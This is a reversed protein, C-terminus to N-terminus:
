KIIACKKIVKIPNEGSKQADIYYIYVGSAIGSIDWQYEYAYIKNDIIKWDSGAVQQTHILEAAINYIKIEVSDAIGCAIHITPKYGNKAPNPYAYAENLKFTPDPGFSKRVSMIGRQEDTSKYIYFEDLTGKAVGYSSEPYKNGINFKSFTQAQWSSANTVTGTKKEGNIWIEAKQATRDWTFKIQYWTNAVAQWGSTEVRVNNASDVLFGMPYSPNGSVYGYFTSNTTCSGFFLYSWSGPSGTFNPRYWFEISGRDPNINGIPDIGFYARNTNWGAPINIAGGATGAIAAIPGNDPNKYTIFGAGTNPAADVTNEMDWYFYNENNNQSPTQAQNSMTSINLESNETWLNFYYTVGRALKSLTIKQTTGATVNSTSIIIQAKSVQWNITDQQNSNWTSYEIYYKGTLTGQNDNNGPSTWTLDIQGSNTGATAQLDNVTAPAIPCYSTFEDMAGKVMGYSSEPIKNGISFGSINTPQWYNVNNVIGSRKIGDIWIEAKQNQRDWVLKFYYWRDKQALWTYAPVQTYVNYSSDVYFMLPDGSNGSKMFYFGSNAPGSSYFFYMGVGTSGTYDPRYWFDIVGKDPNVNSPDISYYARNTNWGSQLQIANGIGSVGATSVIPGNDPNTKAINGAGINPVTANVNDMDWYFYQSENLNQSVASVVNSIGSVNSSEDVTWLAFYYTAGRILRNVSYKQAQGPSVNGTSINVQTKGIDWAVESFTSYQIYFNGGLIRQSGDNGPADWNLVVERSNTGTNAVLTNVASPAVVDSEVTVSGNVISENGALDKVKIQCIYDGPQVLNNYGNKGNWSLTFVGPAANVSSYYRVDNWNSDYIYMRVKSQESVSFSFTVTDNINDNNPSFTSPTVTFDGIEPAVTDRTVYIPDSIESKIPQDNFWRITKAMIPNSGEVIDIFANFLGTVVDATVTKIVAGDNYIEVTAGPESQGSVKVSSGNTLSTALSFTPVPVQPIILYYSFSTVPFWIKYYPRGDASFVPDVTKNIVRVDLPELSGDDKVDYVTMKGMIDLISGYAQLEEPLLNVTLMAPTVTSIHLGKPQFDYIPGIPLPMGENRRITIDSYKKPTITIDVDHDVSGPPFDLYAKNNPATVYTNTSAAQSVHKGIVCYSLDWKLLGNQLVTLKLLYNGNLGTVDWFGLVSNVPPQTSSTIFRWENNGDDKCYTLNYSNLGQAQSPVNGRVEIFRKGPYGSSTMKVTFFDNRDDTYSPPISDVILSDNMTGDPYFLKVTWSDIDVLNNDVFRNNQVDLYFANKVSNNVVGPYELYFFRPTTSGIIFYTPDNDQGNFYNASNVIEGNSSALLSDENSYWNQKVQTTARLIPIGDEYIVQANVSSSSVSYLKYKTQDVEVNAPITFISSINEGRHPTPLSCSINGINPYRATTGWNRSSTASASIQTNSYIQTTVKSNNDTVTYTIGSVTGGTHTAIPVADFSIYQTGSSQSISNTGSVTRTVTQTSTRSAQGTVSWSFVHNSPSYIWNCVHDGTLDYINYYVWVRAKCGSTTKDYVEFGGGILFYGSGNIFHTPYSVTPEPVTYFTTGYQISVTVYRKERAIYASSAIPQDPMDVIAFTWGGQGSYTEKTGGDAGVVSGSKIETEQYSYTETGIGTVSWTFNEYPYETGSAQLVTYFDQPPYHKGNASAVWKFLASGQVPTIGYPETIEATVDSNYTGVTIAIWNDDKTQPLDTSTANLHFNYTGTLSNRWLFTNKGTSVTSDSIITYTQGDYTNEATICVAASKSLEYTITAYDSTDSPSIFVKNSIFSVINLPIGYTKTVVIQRSDTSIGIGSRDRATLLITYNGSELNWFNQSDEWVFSSTAEGSVNQQRFYVVPGASSAWLRYIELSVDSVQYQSQNVIFNITLNATGTNIIFESNNEPSNISVVPPIITDGHNIVVKKIAYDWHSSEDETVLLITYTTGNTLSSTNFYGLTDSVVARRSINTNPYGPDLSSQNLIPVMIPHWYSTDPSTSCNVGAFDTIDSERYWLRYWKFDKPNDIGPDLADGQLIITGSSVSLYNTPFTINAPIYNKIVSTFDTSVNGVTDITKVEVIYYGDNVWQGSYDKGDWIYSAAGAPLVGLYSNKILAGQDDAIRLYTTAPESLSWSINISQTSRFIISAPALGIIRSYYRDIKFANTSTKVATNESLDTANLTFSYTGDQSYFGYKNKGDWNFSYAQTTDPTLVCTATITTVETGNFVYNVTISSSYRDYLNFTINIATDNTTFSDIPTSHGGPGVRVTVSSIVPPTKDIIVNSTTATSHGVLDFAELKLTYAEKTLGSINWFCLIDNNISDTNSSIFVWTASNAPINNGTSYYLSYKELHIDSATGDIQTISVNGQIFMERPLEVVPLETDIELPYSLTQTTSNGYNDDAKLENVLYTGDKLGTPVTWNDTFREFYVDVWEGTSAGSFTITSIEALPNEFKYTRTINSSGDLIKSILQVSDNEKLIPLYTYNTIVTSGGILPPTTDTGSNIISYYSKTSYIVTNGSVDTITDVIVLNFPIEQGVPVDSRLLFNYNTLASGTSFNLIDRYASNNYFVKKVYSSTTGLLATLNHNYFAHYGITNTSLSQYYGNTRINTYGNNFLKADLSILEGADATNSNNGWQSNTINQSDGVVRTTYRPQIDVGVVISFSDYYYNNESDTLTIRYNLAQNLPCDSMVNFIIGNTGETNSGPVVTPFTDSIKEPIFYSYKNTTEDAASITGVIGTITRDSPNELVIKVKPAEGADVDGDANGEGVLTVRQATVNSPTTTKNDIVTSSGIKLSVINVKYDYSLINTTNINSPILVIKDYNSFNGIARQTSTSLAPIALDEQSLVVNDKIKLIKAGWLGNNSEFKINLNQTGAPMNPNKTFVIYNSALPMVNINGSIFPYAAITTSVKINPYLSGDWYNGKAYNWWTFRKFQEALSSFRNQVLEDDIAGLSTTTSCRLWIQRIIDPGFSSNESLLKSFVCMGYKRLYGYDYDLPYEPYDFLALEGGERRGNGNRDYFSEGIDYRSNSNTDTYTENLIYYTYDNVNNFVEDEMWTATAEKWWSDELSDFRRCIAHLFEHAATVKMAGKQYGEPDDNISAGVYDNDVEIYSYIEPTGTQPTPLTVGYSGLGLDKIYINYRTDNNRDSDIFPSPPEGYGYQTPPNAPTTTEKNWVEEFYRGFNYVYDPIGPHVSSTWGSESVKQLYEDYNPHSSNVSQTFASFHFKFHTSICIGYNVYLTTTIPNSAHDLAYIYIENIGQRLKMDTIESKNTLQSFTTGLSLPLNIM